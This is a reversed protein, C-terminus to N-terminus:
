EGLMTSVLSKRPTHTIVFEETEIKPIRYGDETYKDKENQNVITNDKKNEKLKDKLLYNDKQSDNQCTLLEDNQCSVNEIQNAVIENSTNDNQNTMDKKIISLQRITKVKGEVNVNKTTKNIFHRETLSKIARNITSISSNLNSAFVEDTMYCSKENREFEEIQSLILMDLTSIDKRNFYRNKSVKLFVEKESTM